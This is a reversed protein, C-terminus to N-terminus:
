TSVFLVLGGTCGEPQKCWGNGNRRELYTAENSPENSISQIEGGKWPPVILSGLDPQCSKDSVLGPKSFPTSRRLEKQMGPHAMGTNHWKQLLALIKQSKWQKPWRISNSLSTHVQPRGALATYYVRPGLLAKEQGLCSSTALHQGTNDGSGDKELKAKCPGPQTGWFGLWVRWPLSCERPSLTDEEDRERLIGPGQHRTITRLWIVIAPERGGSAELCGWRALQCNLSRGLEQM